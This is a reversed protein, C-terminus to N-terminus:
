RGYTMKFEREGKLVDTEQMPLSEDDENDFLIWNKVHSMFSQNESLQVYIVGFESFNAHSKKNGIYLVSGDSQIERACKQAAFVSDVTEWMENKCYPTDMAILMKMM